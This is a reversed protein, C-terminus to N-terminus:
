KQYLEKLFERPIRGILVEELHMFRHVMGPIREVEQHAFFDDVTWRWGDPDDRLIDLVKKALSETFGELSSIAISVMKQVIDGARDEDSQVESDLTHVFDQLLGSLLQPPRSEIQAM